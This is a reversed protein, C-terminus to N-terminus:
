AESDHRRNHHPILKAGTCQHAGRRKRAQNLGEVGHGDRPGEGIRQQAWQEPGTGGRQLILAGWDGFVQRRLGCSMTDVREDLNPSLVLTLFKLKETAIRASNTAGIAAGNASGAFGFGFHGSVRAVAGSTGFPAGGSAPM